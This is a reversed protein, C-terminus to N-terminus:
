AAVRPAPKNEFLDLNYLALAAQANNILIEPLHSDSSIPRLRPYQMTEAVIGRLAKLLALERPTIVTPIPTQM